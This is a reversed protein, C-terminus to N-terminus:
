IETYLSDLTALLSGTGLGSDDSSLLAALSDELIFIEEAEAMSVSARDVATEAGGQMETWTTVAVAIAAAIPLAFPIIKRITSRRTSDKETAAMVRATFDDSAQLPRSTLLADIKQELPDQQSNPKM